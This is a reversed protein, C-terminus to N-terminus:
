IRTVWAKHEVGHATQGQQRTNSRCALLQTLATCCIHALQAVRQQRSVKDLQQVRPQQVSVGVWAVEDACTRKVHLLLLLLLM